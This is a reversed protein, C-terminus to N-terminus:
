RTSSPSPAPAAVTPNYEWEWPLNTEGLLSNVLAPYIIEARVSNSMLLICQKKSEVCVAMNGTSDDHGGKFFAPGHPSKFLVVGLGASLGIKEHAPSTATDLTPFQHASTIAIQPRLMERRAEASIGEGRMFGALFKAYDTITSDMSGAARVNRRARHKELQGDLTYGHAVNAQFDDRWTMSTRAMGFREFVRRDMERGVDMGFGEELVFQLLNYGEGSYAYRSGPDFKFDLKEDPNLFRFNPFGPTHNLLMRPTLSKWRADASLEAYKPYEPLPKPLYSSIPKDLDLKKADVLQMVFYAFTLKTLSAVYLITDAELPKAEEVSRLGYSKVYLPRGDQILALALGPVREQEMQKRVEADIERASLNKGDLRRINPEPEAASAMVACLLGFGLLASRSTM